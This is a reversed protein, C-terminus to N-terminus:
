GPACRHVTMTQAYTDSLNAYEDSEESSGTLTRRNTAPVMRGPASGQRRMIEHIGPHLRPLWQPISSGANRKRIQQALTFRNGATGDAYRMDPGFRAIASFDALVPGKEEGISNTVLDILIKTTM